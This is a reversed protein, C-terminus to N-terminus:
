NSTEGKNIEEYRVEIGDYKKSSFIILQRTESYKKLFRITSQLRFPDFHVFADDFFMPKPDEKDFFDALALRLSLYLQSKTARSLYQEEKSFVRDGKIVYGDDSKLIEVYEGNTFHKLYMSATKLINHFSSNLYRSKSYDFLSELMLYRNYDLVLAEKEAKLNKLKQRVIKINNLSYFRGMEENLKNLEYVVSGQYGDDLNDYLKNEEVILANLREKKIYMDKQIKKIEMFKKRGLLLIKSAKIAKSFYAFKYVLYALISLLSFYPRSIVIFFISLLVFFIPIYLNYHLGICSNNDKVYYEYEALRDNIMQLESSINEQKRKVRDISKRINKSSGSLQQLESELARKKENYELEKKNYDFLDNELEEITSDIRNILKNSHIRNSYLSKKRKEITSTIERLSNYKKLNSDYLISDVISDVSKESLALIDDSDITYIDRIIERDVEYVPKNNIRKTMGNVHLYGSVTKSLKREVRFTDFACSIYAESDGIPIYKYNKVSSFGAIASTLAEFITSKGAENQGYIFTINRNLDLSFDNFKGLKHIELKTVKM